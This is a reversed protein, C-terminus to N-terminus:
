DEVFELEENSYFEGGSGGYNERTAYLSVDDMGDWFAQIGTEWLRKTLTTVAGQGPMM